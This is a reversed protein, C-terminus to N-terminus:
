YIHLGLPSDNSVSLDLLFWSPSAPIFGETYFKRTKNQGHTTSIGVTFTSLSANFMRLLDCFTKQNVKM